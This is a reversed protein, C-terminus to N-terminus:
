AGLNRHHIRFVVDDADIDVRAGPALSPVEKAAIYVSILSMMQMDVSDVPRGDPSAPGVFLLLRGSVPTNVSGALSKDLTVHFFAHQPLSAPQQAQSTALLLAIQLLGFGAAVRTRTRNFAKM